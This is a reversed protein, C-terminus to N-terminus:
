QMIKLVFTNYISNIYINVLYNVKLDWNKKKRVDMTNHVSDLLPVKTKGGNSLGFIGISLRIIRYLFTGPFFFNRSFFRSIFVNTFVDWNESTRPYFTM